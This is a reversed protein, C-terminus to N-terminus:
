IKYVELVRGTSIVVRKVPNKKDSAGLRVFVNIGNDGTRVRKKEAMKQADKGTLFSIFGFPRGDGKNPPIRVGAIKGYPAATDRLIEETMEDEREWSVFVDTVTPLRDFVADRLFNSPFKCAVEGIWQGESIEFRWQISEFECLRKEGFLVNCWDDKNAWPIKGILLEDKKGVPVFDLVKPFKACALKIMRITARGVFDASAMLDDENAKENLVLQRLQSLTFNHRVHFEGNIKKRTAENVKFLQNVPIWKNHHLKLFNSTKTQSFTCIFTDKKLYKLVEIQVDSVSNYVPPESTSESAEHDNLRMEQGEIALSCEFLKTESELEFLCVEKLVERYSKESTKVVVTLIDLVVANKASSNETPATTSSDPSVASMNQPGHNHKARDYLLQLTISNVGVLKSLSGSAATKPKPPNPNSISNSRSTQTNSSSSTSSPVATSIPKFIDPSEKIDVSDGILDRINEYNKTELASELRDIEEVTKASIIARQIAAVVSSSM